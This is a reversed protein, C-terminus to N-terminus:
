ITVCESSKSDKNSSDKNSSDKKRKFTQRLKKLHLETITCVIIFVPSM